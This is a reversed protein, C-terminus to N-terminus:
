RNRKEGFFLFNLIPFHVFFYKKLLVPLVTATATCVAFATYYLHLKSWLLIRFPIKIIDSLIYIEMCYKGATELVRVFLSSSKALQASLYLVMISGFTGTLLKLSIPSGWYAALSLVAWLPACIAFTRFPIEYILDRHNQRIYIGLFFFFQYFLVDGPLEPIIQSVGGFNAFMRDM